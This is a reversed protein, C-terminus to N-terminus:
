NPPTADPEAGIMQLASLDGLGCCLVLESLMQYQESVSRVYMLRAELLMRHTDLVDRFSNEGAQWGARVTELTSEARPIIQDRYLLAERRAADAKVTLRHLEERLALREDALELQAASLRSQERRVDANIKSNNLWPLSVRLTFMGQRFSGDGSYTRAEVGAFVDPYRERRTAAVKAEAQKIQQQQILTKPEYKLAFEFLRASYPVPGAVPPLEFVPWPSQPARNLLRNLTAQENALQGRDTQLQNARKAQENQIQLIEALSARGARANGEISQGMADLWALDKEGITVVSGALAARFAAQALGVRMKQFQYDSNATETALEARAMNRELGPKGFLPLKQEVGYIIDGEDARMEERASLGGVVAMPDEWTRVAAVGAAAANTMAAVARLAPNNTRMEDALRGLYDPTVVVANTAIAEARLTEAALAALLILTLIQRM